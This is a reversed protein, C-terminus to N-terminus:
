TFLLSGSKSFYELQYCNVKVQYFEEQDTTYFASRFVDVCRGDCFKVQYSKETKITKIKSRGRPKGHSKIGAYSIVRAPWYARDKIGMRCLVLEGPIELEHDPQDLTKDLEDREPTASRAKVEAPSIVNDLVARSEQSLPIMCASLDPLDDDEQFSYIVHKERAIV